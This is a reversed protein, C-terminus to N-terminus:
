LTTHLFYMTKKTLKKERERWVILVACLLFVLTYFIFYFRPLLKKPKRMFSDRETRVSTRKIHANCVYM